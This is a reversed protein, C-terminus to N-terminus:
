VGRTCVGLQVKLRVFSIVTDGMTDLCTNETCRAVLYGVTVKLVMHGANRVITLRFASSEWKHKFSAHAITRSNFVFVGLSSLGSAPTYCLRYFLCIRCSSYSGIHWLQKCRGQHSHSEVVHTIICSEPINIKFDYTRITNGNILKLM